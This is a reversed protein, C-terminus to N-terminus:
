QADIADPIQHEVGGGTGKQPSAPIDKRLFHGVREPALPWPLAPGEMPYPNEAVFMSSGGKTPGRAQQAGDVVRFTTDVALDRDLVTLRSPDSVWLRGVPDWSVRSVYAEDTEDLFLREVPELEVRLHEVTREEDESGFACGAATLGGHTVPGTM